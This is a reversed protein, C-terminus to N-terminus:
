VSLVFLTVVTINCCYLIVFYHKAINYMSKHVGQIEEKNKSRKKISLFCDLQIGHM